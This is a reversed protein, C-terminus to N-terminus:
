KLESRVDDKYYVCKRNEMKVICGCRTCKRTGNNPWNIWSHFIMNSRDIKKM